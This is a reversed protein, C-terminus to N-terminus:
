AFCRCCVQPFAKMLDEEDEELVVLQRHLEKVKKKFQRRKGEGSRELDRLKKAM